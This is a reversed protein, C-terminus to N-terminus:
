ILAKVVHQTFLCVQMDMLQSRNGEFSEKLENLCDEFPKQKEQAEKLRRQTTEYERNAAEYKESAENRKEEAKAINSRVNDVQTQAQEVEQEAEVVQVWAMQYQLTTMSDRLSDHSDFQEVKKRAEELKGKLSEVAETKSVHVAEINKISQQILAYDADLQELQVGRSFFSYKQANTATSLFERAADQTLITMPNDVQLGYFDCIDDLEDKKTSVIKGSQAKLKYQSAGDRSFVREIIIADGYKDQKFGDGGNKLRVTIRATSIVNSLHTNVTHVFGVRRRRQYLKEHFEWSENCCSEGRVSIHASYPHCEQWKRQPWHHLEHSTGPPM